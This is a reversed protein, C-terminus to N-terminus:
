RRGRGPRQPRDFDILTSTTVLALGAVIVAAPWYIVATGAIVLVSGLALLVLPIM